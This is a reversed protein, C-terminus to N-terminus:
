RLIAWVSGCGEDVGWESAVADVIMLGRGTPGLHGPVQDQYHFGAHSTQSVELRIRDRKSNQEIIVTVSGADRGGHRVANTVLESVILMASEVARHGDLVDSVFRRADGPATPIPNLHVEAIQATSDGIENM